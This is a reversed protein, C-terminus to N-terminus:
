RGQSAQSALYERMKELLEESQPKREQKALWSGYNRCEDPGLEELTKGKHKGFTVTYVGGNKPKLHDPFEGEEFPASNGKKSRPVVEHSDNEPDKPEVTPILLVELIAYKHAVSMAKNAAKDGLDMGEGIMTCSVSSGDTATFDYRITLVTVFLAGGAKSQREERIMSLVTPAVFVGHRAFLPQAAEYVDDVGRFNYGQSQNKRDKGIHGIESMIKIIQEHILAM